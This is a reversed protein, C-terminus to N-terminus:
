MEETRELEKGVKGGVAQKFEDYVPQGWEEDSMVLFIIDGYNTVWVKQASVCIWKRTDINNLMEQKMEEINANKSVKVMVASFAQSSIFPESVVVAEVNNNTKLGTTSTFAYEDTIDVERIELGPLKDALKTNINNLVEQMKEATQIQVGGKNTEEENKSFMVISVIVIAIAIVAVIGIIVKKM